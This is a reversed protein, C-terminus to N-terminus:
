ARLLMDPELPMKKGYADVDLRDLAVKVRYAPEKLEIPGSTDSKTLITQSVEYVRGGYTGFQQYPFAEYLIRVKQGPRVFGIARAPVFLEVQLVSDNPIIEMQPRRSDAFQGVTAQLTSVHGTRRWRVARVKARRQVSSPFDSLRRLFLAATALRSSTHFLSTDFDLFITQRGM